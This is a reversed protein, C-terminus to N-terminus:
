VPAARSRDSILMSFIGWPRGKEDPQVTTTFYNSYFGTDEISAMSFALEAKDTGVLWFHGTHVVNSALGIALHKYLCGKNFTLPCDRRSMPCM